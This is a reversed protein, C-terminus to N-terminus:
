GTAELARSCRAGALAGLIQALLFTPVDAPRIGSFTNTAARALTVAPNTFSTSSTFWYAATIYCGVALATASRGNPTAGRIVLVLGLTAVFEALAPGFGARVKRSAAFAPEGFMAHAALAGGFAGSVQALVYAPLDRRPLSGRLTETVTLVPNLHAGSIAGLALILAILGAGTAISNALLALGAVGGSLREGMIGSGVITALLFATGIGEALARTTLSPAAAEVSPPRGGEPAALRYSM